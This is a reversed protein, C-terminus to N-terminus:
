DPLGNLKSEPSESRKIAAGCSYHNRCAHSEIPSAAGRSYHNRCAHSEIPSAAGRRYHNRCAHSEIPSAAGRSYHNRCALSEVPFAHLLVGKEQMPLLPPTLSVGALSESVCRIRCSLRENWRPWLRFSHWSSTHSTAVTPIIGSSNNRAGGRGLQAM